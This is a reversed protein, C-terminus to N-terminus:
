RLIQNLVSKPLSFKMTKLPDVVQCVGLNGTLSMLRAADNPTLHYRDVLFRHAKQLVLKECTDLEKASALLILEEDNEVSPTPHRAPDISVVLDVEGSVEAGCICVEGDGMAAHLDGLALLAGNVNVPLYLTTGATISRCDMNGGHEGPTGTPIAEGAPATGIVGIMPATPIFVGPMVEVNGDRIPLIRTESGVVRDELAGMGRVTIMVAHDRFRIAKIEVKLVDGAKAGEIYVPGTAPNVTSWKDKTYLDEPTRLQGSFCDQTEFTLSAGAKVTFVPANDASM